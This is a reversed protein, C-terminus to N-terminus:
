TPTKTKIYSEYDKQYSKVKYPLVNFATILKFYSTRDELIVMYNVKSCWIFYRNRNTQDHWKSWIKYEGCTTHEEILAKAWPLSGCRDEDFSRSLDQGGSTVIHWFSREKNNYFTHHIIDVPKGMFSPASTIFDRKFIEYLAEEYKKFDGAFMSWELRAPLQVCFNFPM